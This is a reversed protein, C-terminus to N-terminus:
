ASAFPPTVTKSAEGIMAKLATEYQERDFRFPGFIDYNWHKVRSSAYKKRRYPQEFKKWVVITKKVEIRALLPWCGSVGCDGCELLNTKARYYFESEATGHFHEWPGHLWNLRLWAYNGADTTRGEAEAFPLEIERALDILSRGNVFIAVAPSPAKDAYIESDKVLKFEITDM